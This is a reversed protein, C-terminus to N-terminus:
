TPWSGSRGAARTSPWRSPCTPRTRTTSSPPARRSPSRGRITSSRSRSATTSRCSTTSTPKRSGPRRDAAQAERAGARRSRAGRCRDVDTHFLQWVDKDFNGSAPPRGTSPSPRGARRGSAARASCRTTSASRRRRRTPARRVLVEDLQRAAAGARPREADQPVGPRRVRPDDARRRDLPPVPPPGRGQGQHGEALPHGDPRQHWGPLQLAQVDPVADLVGDGLRDPLPQLHGPQGSRRPAQPEGVDRGALRQLVQERQGLREADRRRIRRQRRLLLDAHQRATRDGRPLRHDPRGARRHVRSFGAYVEAM